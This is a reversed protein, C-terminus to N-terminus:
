LLRDTRYECTTSQAEGTATGIRMTFTTACMFRKWNPARWTKSDCYDILEGLKNYSVNRGTPIYTYFSPLGNRKVRKLAVSKNPQGRHPGPNTQSPTDSASHWGQQTQPNPCGAAESSGHLLRFGVVQYFRIADEGDLDVRYNPNCTTQKVYLSTVMGMNLLLMQIERALRPSSTSVTVNGYRNEATGDTDFLGQLFAAVFERPARLICEPVKKGTASEYGLGNDALFQRIRQSCVQYGFPGNVAGM